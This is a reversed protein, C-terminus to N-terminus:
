KREPKSKTLEYSLDILPFIQEEDVSGDLAATIWSDKNMHYAPFFGQRQRLDGILIPDSKLNIVDIEGEGDLGLRKCPLRMILAFWKKNDEHRLVASEDDNQWPYDPEVSYKSQAYEFVTQRLSNINDERM